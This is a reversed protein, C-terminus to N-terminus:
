RNAWWQDHWGLSAVQALEHRPTSVSIVLMTIKVQSYCSKQWLTETGLRPSRAQMRRGAVRMVRMSRVVSSRVSARVSERLAPSALWRLNMGVHLNRALVPQRRGASTTSLGIWAGSVADTTLM